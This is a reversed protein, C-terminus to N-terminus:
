FEDTCLSYIAIFIAIDQRESPSQDRVIRAIIDGNTRTVVCEALQANLPIEKQGDHVGYM